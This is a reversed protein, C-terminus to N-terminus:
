EMDKIEQPLPGVERGDVYLKLGTGEGIVKVGTGLARTLTLNQVAKNSASVVVAIDAMAQYGAAHARVYYTDAKLQEITCPSSTCRKEGNVLIEVADLTKNGPGSVTVVLSGVRPWFVFLAVAAAIAVAALGIYL